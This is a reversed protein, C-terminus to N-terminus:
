EFIVSGILSNIISGNNLVDIEITFVINDDDPIIRIEAGYNNEGQVIVRSYLNNEEDFLYASSNIEDLSKIEEMYYQATQISIYENDTINSVNQCFIFINFIPLIVAGLIGLSVITEILTLGKTNCLRKM